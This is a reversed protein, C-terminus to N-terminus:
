RGRTDHRRGKGNTMGAAGDDDPGAISFEAFVPFHDSVARVLRRRIGFVSDYRFVRGSNPVYEHGFTEPFLVIRDYTCGSRVATRADNEIIWHFRRARLPHTEDRENFYGCDANFDGLLIVDRENSDAVALAVRALAAMERAADGPKIHAVVLRFDFAGAMFRAVLPPREFRGRNAVTFSDVFAVVSPRYYIVYQEKSESRGLRPGVIMAWPAGSGRNLRELLADAARGSEDRVEQVATVDFQRVIRSIVTMVAAHQAKKAGFVQINFAAVRITGSSEPQAALPPVRVGVGLVTLVFM